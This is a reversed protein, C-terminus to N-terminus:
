REKNKLERNKGKKETWRTDLPEETYFIMTRQSSFFSSFFLSPPPDLAWEERRLTSHDLQVMKADDRRVASGNSRSPWGHLVNIYTYLKYIYLARASYVTYIQRYVPLPLFPTRPPPLYPKAWCRYHDGVSQERSSGMTDIQPRAHNIATWGLALLHQVFPKRPSAMVQRM